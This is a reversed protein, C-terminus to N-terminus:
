RCCRSCRSMSITSSIPVSSPCSRRRRSPRRAARPGGCARGRRGPSRPAILPLAARDGARDIRSSSITITTSMRTSPTSRRAPATTDAIAGIIQRGPAARCATAWATSRSWGRAPSRRRRRAAAPAPARAQGRRRPHRDRPRAARAAAPARDRDAVIARLQRQSGRADHGRDYSLTPSTACTRSTPSTARAASRAHVDRRRARHLGDRESRRRAAAARAYMTLAPQGNWFGGTNSMISVLELTREPIGSRSADPRDDRGDLRRRHPGARHRPPRARRRQRGGHRGAHLGRRATARSRAAGADAVPAGDLRSDLPRHRPQRPPHRLLRARRAAACFDEHWAVMQTGLGMILLM